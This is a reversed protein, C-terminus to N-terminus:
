SLAQRNRAPLQAYSPPQVLLTNGHCARELVHGFRQDDIAVGNRHPMQDRGTILSRPNLVQSPEQLPDMLKTVAGAVHRLQVRKRLGPRPDLGDLTQVIKIPREQIIPAFLQGIRVSRKIKHQRLSEDVPVRVGPIEEATRAM